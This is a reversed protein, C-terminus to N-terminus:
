RNMAVLEGLKEQGGALFRTYYWDYYIKASPMIQWQRLTWVPIQIGAKTPIVYQSNRFM